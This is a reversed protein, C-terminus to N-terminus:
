VIGIKHTIAYKVLSPGNSLSLKQMLRWRLTEVTRPSIGLIESIQRSTNGEGILGIIERERVTVRPGSATARHPLPDDPDVPRRPEMESRIRHLEENQMALEIQHIELEHVTWQFEEVTPPASMEGYHVHKERFQVEAKSRLELFPEILRKTKIM